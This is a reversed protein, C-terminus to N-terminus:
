QHATKFQVRFTTGENEKSSVQISAQNKDLIQRAIALGLGTGEPKNTYFPDFIKDINMQPIGVGTDSVLLEVGRGGPDRQATITLDGGEPMAQMANIVFNIIVQTVQRPDILVPPLSEHLKLHIRVNHKRLQVRTLDHVGRLVENIDSEVLHAPKPKSFELIESIIREIKRVEKQIDLMYVQYDQDLALDRLLIQTNLNITAMPNRIEHAIGAALTGLSAMKDAQILQKEMKLKDTVDIGYNIILSLNGSADFIPYTYEELTRNIVPNASLRHSPKHTHKTDRVPCSPCPENRRRFAEYCKRGLLQSITEGFLSATAKNVMIINYDLDTITLLSMIGDFVAMLRNKSEIIAHELQKQRLEKEKRLTIDRVVSMLYKEGKLKLISTNVEVPVRSGDRRIMTEERHQVHEGDKQGAGVSSDDRHVLEAMGIRLVEDRTYGLMQCARTNIDVIHGDFTELFVADNAGEVLTRYREESDKLAEETQKRETIDELIAQLAPQDDYSITGVRARIDMVTGDCALGRFNLDQQLEDTREYKFNQFLEVFRRRDEPHLLEVFDRGLLGSPHPYRFMSTMVKNCYCITGRSDIISIPYLNGEVLSRYKIESRVLASQLDRREEEIALAKALMSFLAVEDPIVSRSTSFVVCFCGCVQGNVLLPKGICKKLQYREVLYDCQLEPDMGLNELIETQAGSGKLIRELLPGVQARCGKAEDVRGDPHMLTLSTENEDKGARFYLAACASLLNAAELVIKHINANHDAGFSLFLQNLASTRTELRKQHTIDLLIGSVHNISRGDADFIAQGRVQLWRHQGDRCRIFYERLVSGDQHFAPQLLDNSFSAADKGLLSSWLGPETCLAEKPYGTLETIRDDVFQISGDAFVTFVVGPINELLTRFHRESRQITGIQQRERLVRKLKAQFEENSFPKQIFDTAGAALVDDYTYRMSYATMLIVDTEPCLEKILRTLQLGDVDPMAIDSIVVPFGEKELLEKARSFDGATAAELGIDRILEVCLDRVDSVDDVVLIREPAQEAKLWPAPASQKMLM